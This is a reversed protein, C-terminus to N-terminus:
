PGEAKPIYDGSTEVGIAANRFRPDDTVEKGVWDPLNLLADVAELEVEALVLGAANGAFVDVEWIRDDHPVRYRTKEIVPAGCMQTLIEAADSVPIEYEYEDRIIGAHASKLTLWARNGALRIRVSAKEQQGCNGRTVYGQRFFRGADADKRWGDGTVLFKREIEIPM